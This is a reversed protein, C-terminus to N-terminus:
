KEESPRRAYTVFEAAFRSVIMSACARFTSLAIGIPVSGSPTIQDDLYTRSRLRFDWLEIEGASLVLLRTGANSQGVSWRKYFHPLSVASTLLVKLKLQSPQSSHPKQSETERFRFRLLTY